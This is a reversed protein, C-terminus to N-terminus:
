QKLLEVAKQLQLDHKINDPGINEVSGMEVMVDPEVGIGHIRNGLPSYYEGVTLKFGTRDPLDVVTQITGKGFTKKGVINGTKHDKVSAAILESASGTRENVLLTFPIGISQSNAQIVSETGDSNKILYLIGESLLSDAIGRASSVVGGGNYRLDIILSKAGQSKLDEVVTKFDTYTPHEFQTIRIYGIDDSIIKPFVTRLKIAERVLTKTISVVNGQSDKTSIGLVLQTGVTGDLKKTFDFVEYGSYKEGDISEIIDGPQIGAKAAPSEDVVAFVEIQNNNNAMLHVGIGVFEGKLDAKLTQYAIEDMYVSHEDGIVEFIEKISKNRLQEIDIKGKYNAEIFKLIQAKKEEECDYQDIDINEEKALIRSVVSTAEARTILSQPKFEGEPYGLIVGMGTLVHIYDEAWSGEIDTFSLENNGLSLKNENKLYKYVLSVFEARTINETPRFTGDPYGSVIGENLLNKISNTSWRGFIDTLSNNNSENEGILRSVIAAAEERTLNGEPNFTGDEYGKILNKEKLYYVANKAWHNELDSFAFAMNSVVFTLALSLAIIRRKM